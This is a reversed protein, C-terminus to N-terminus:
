RTAQAAEKVERLSGTMCVFELAATTYYSFSHGVEFDDVHVVTGKDAEQWSLAYLGAGLAEARYRVEATAGKFPGATVEYRMTLGDAAYINLATMKDGYHVEFTRGAFPLPAAMHNGM